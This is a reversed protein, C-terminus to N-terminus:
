VISSSARPSWPINRIFEKIKKSGWGWNNQAHDSLWFISLSSNTQFPHTWMSKWYYNTTELNSVGVMLYYNKNKHHEWIETWLKKWSLSWGFGEGDVCVWFYQSSSLRHIKRGEYTCQWRAWTHKKLSKKIKLKKKKKKKLDIM